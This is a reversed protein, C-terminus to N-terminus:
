TRRLDKNKSLLAFIIILATSVAAATCNNTVQFAHRLVGDRICRAGQREISRGQEVAMPCLCAWTCTRVSTPAVEVLSSHSTISSQECKVIIGMSLELLWKEHKESFRASYIRWQEQCQGQNHGKFSKREEGEGM